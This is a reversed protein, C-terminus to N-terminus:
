SQALGRISYDKDPSKPDNIFLSLQWLLTRPLVMKQWYTIGLFYVAKENNWGLAQMLVTGLYYHLIRKKM